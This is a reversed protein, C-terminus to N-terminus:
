DKSLHSVLLNIVQSSPNSNKRQLGLHLKKTRSVFQHFIKMTQYSRFGGKEMTKRVIISKNSLLYNTASIPANSSTMERPFIEKLDKDYFKPHYRGQSRIRRAYHSRLTQNLFKINYFSPEKIPPRVRPTPKLNKSLYDLYEMKKKITPYPAYSPYWNGKLSIYVAFTEAFDETPHTQAYTSSLNKVFRTSYKKGREEHTYKSNPSGFTREFDKRKSIKYAHDFAHGFEHRLLKMASTETGGEVFDMQKKEIESLKNNFLYFPVAIAPVGEPSFWEDGIYIKPHFYKFGSSRTEFELQSMLPSLWSNDFRLDLESLKQNLATDVSM